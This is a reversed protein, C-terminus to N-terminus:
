QYIVLDPPTALANLREPPMLPEDWEFFLKIASREAYTSRAYRAFKDLKVWDAGFGDMDITVEVEPVAEYTAAGSLMDDRFQHIVLVKRPTRQERVLTVLYAQVANVDPAFLTGIAAGPPEKDPRTAFEPDLALHVHPERLAWELQQVETLPDAWGIQVDLFLLAGAERTAEVYREIEARPMRHLYTGGPGPEPQATAVILHLAPIARRNGNTVDYQAALRSVEALATAPDYKGLAGMVAIGPYGYFSVVQGADFYSPLLGPPQKPQQLLLWWGDPTLQTYALVATQAASRLATFAYGLSRALLSPPAAPLTQAPEAALGAHSVASTAPAASTAGPLPAAAFLLVALAIGAGTLRHGGGGASAGGSPQLLFLCNRLRRL